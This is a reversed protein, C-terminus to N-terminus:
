LSGWACCAAILVLFAGWVILRDACGRSPTTRGGWGVHDLNNEM